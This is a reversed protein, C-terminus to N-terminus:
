LADAGLEPAVASTTDPATEAALEPAPEPVPEPAPEPAVEFVLDPALAPAVAESPATAQAAPPQPELGLLDQLPAGGRPLAEIYFGLASLQHALAEFDAQGASSDARALSAISVAADRVLALADTEGLVSLAGIIQQLPQHLQLLPERKAPNRFFDDLAQEVHGLSSLMEKALQELVTKDQASGAAGLVDDAAGALPTEGRQLAHLRQLMADVRAGFGP